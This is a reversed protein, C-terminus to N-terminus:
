NATGNRVAIPKAPTTDITKIVTEKLAKKFGEVMSGGSGETPAFRGGGLVTSNIEDPLTGSGQFGPVNKRLYAKFEEPGMDENEQRAQIAATIRADDKDELGLYRDVDSSLHRAGLLSPDVGAEMLRQNEKAEGANDIQNITALDKLQRLTDILVKAGSVASEFWSGLTAILEPTFISAVTQKLANMSKQLKGATSEQFKEYDKSVDQAGRTKAILDDLAGPVKNLEDFAKLGEVRGFAKALKTPDRALKSTGIDKVIESLDRLKKTKPDFIKVGAKEFRKANKIFATMMAQIGTVAENGSGFGQRALQVMSGLQAIGEAGTTGFKSFTPTVGALLTSLEKLEVAGAKGQALITSFAQEMQSPDINMNQKLAAATSAIDSMEAGSAVQVRAFTEMSKRAGDIDGTLSVYQRAADLVEGRGVGTDDSVADIRARLSKLDAASINAQIGLRTLTREFDLASKAGAVLGAGIGLGTGLGAFKLGRRLKGFVTGFAGSIKTAARKATKTIRDFGKAFQKRIRRIDGPVRAGDVRMEAIASQTETM